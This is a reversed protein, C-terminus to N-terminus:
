IRILDAIYVVGTFKGKSTVVVCDGRNMELRNMADTRLSELPAAIDTILPNRNMYNVVPERYFLGIGLRGAAILFFRESMLLGLPENEANCVVICKSEPHQFMVRLAERCTCSAPIVPASRVNSILEKELATTM